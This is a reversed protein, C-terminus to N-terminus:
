KEDEKIARFIIGEEKVLLVNSGQELEDNDMDPEIMVYHTQGYQDVVKGQAASGKKASGMIIVATRGVFTQTSVAETEDKPMVKGLVGGFVRVAPISVMLAPITALMPPMLYGLTTQMFGQIIFGATGFATLFVILLILFPVKGIRLWGLLRTASSAPQVEAGAMDFDLDPMLSEILSSIGAGLLTMVGELIALGFMVGICVAFPINEDAFWFEM